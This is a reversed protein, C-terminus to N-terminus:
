TDSIVFFLIESELWVQTKFFSFTIKGSVAILFNKWLSIIVELIEPFFIYRSRCLNFIYM